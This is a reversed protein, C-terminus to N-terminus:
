WVMTKLLWCWWLLWWFLVSLELSGSHRLASLHWSKRGTRVARLIDWIHVFTPDWRALWLGWCSQRPLLRDSLMKRIRSQNWLPVQISLCTDCLVSTSFISLPRQLTSRLTQQIGGSGWHEMLAAPSASRSHLSLAYKWFSIFLTFYILFYDFILINRKEWCREKKKKGLFPSNILIWEMVVLTESHGGTVNRGSDMIGLFVCMEASTGMGGPQTHSPLDWGSVGHPKM